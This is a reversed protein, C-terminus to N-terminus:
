GWESKSRRTGPWPSNISSWLGECGVSAGVWGEGLRM